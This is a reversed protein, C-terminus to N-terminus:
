TALLDARARLGESWCIDLREGRGERGGIFAKNRAEPHVPAMVLLDGPMFDRRYRVAIVTLM